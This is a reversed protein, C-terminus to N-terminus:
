TTTLKMQFLVQLCISSKKRKRFYIDINLFVIAVNNLNLPMERVEVSEAYQDLEFSFNSTFSEHDMQSSKTNLNKGVFFINVYFQLKFKVVKLYENIKLQLDAKPMKFIDAIFQNVGFKPQKSLM